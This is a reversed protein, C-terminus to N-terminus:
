RRHWVQREGNAFTFMMSAGEVYYRAYPTWGPAGPERIYVIGGETRWEGRTVDGSGSNGYVSGLNNDMGASVGGSGYAYSGDANVQMFLRTTASFDGSIYTDSYSWAGVLAPDREFQETEPRM